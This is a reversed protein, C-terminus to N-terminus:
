TFKTGADPWIRARLEGLKEAVVDLSQPNEFTVAVICEGPEMTRDGETELGVAGRGNRGFLIAPLRDEGHHGQGIEILGQGLAIHLPEAQLAGGVAAALRANLEAIEADAKDQAMLARDGREMWYHVQSVLKSIREQGTTADGAEENDGSAVALKAALYKPTDTIPVGDEMNDLLEACQGLASHYVRWDLNDSSAAPAYVMVHQWVHPDPKVSPFNGACEIFAWLMEEMYAAANEETIRRGQQASTVFSSSRALAIIERLDASANFLGRADIRDANKALKDLDVAASGSAPSAPLVKRIRDLTGAVVYKDTDPIAALAAGTGMFDLLKAGAEAFANALDTRTTRFEFDM